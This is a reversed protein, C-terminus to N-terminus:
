EKEMQRPYEFLSRKPTSSSKGKKYDCLFVKAGTLGEIALLRKLDGSAYDNATTARSICAIGDQM